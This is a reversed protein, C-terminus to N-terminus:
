IGYLQLPTTKTNRNNTKGKLIVSLGMGNSVQLSTITEIHRVYDKNRLRHNKNTAVGLQLDSPNVYDFSYKDDFLKFIFVLM